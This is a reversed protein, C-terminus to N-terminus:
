RFSVEMSREVFDNKKGDITLEIATPLKVPCTKNASGIAQDGEDFAYQVQRIDKQM